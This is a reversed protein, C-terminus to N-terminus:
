LSDEIILLVLLTGKWIDAMGIDLKRNKWSTNEAHYPTLLVYSVFTRGERVPMSGKM